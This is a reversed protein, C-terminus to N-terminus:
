LKGKIYNPRWNEAAGLVQLESKVIDHGKPQADHCVDKEAPSYAAPCAHDHNGIETPHTKRSSKVERVPLYINLFTMAFISRLYLTNLRQM